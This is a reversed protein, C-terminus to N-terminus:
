RNLPSGFGSRGALRPTAAFSWVPGLGIAVEVGNAFVRLDTLGVQRSAPREPRPLGDRTFLPELSPQRLSVCAVRRCTHTLFPEAVVSLIAVEHKLTIRPTLLLFARTNVFVFATLGFRTRGTERSWGNHGRRSTERHKLTDAEDTRRRSQSRCASEGQESTTHSAGSDEARSEVGTRVRGDTEPM